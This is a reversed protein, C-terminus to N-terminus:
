KQGAASLERITTRWKVERTNKQILLLESQKQKGKRERGWGLENWKQPQMESLLIFAWKGQTVSCPRRKIGIQPSDESPCSGPIFLMSEWNLGSADDGRHNLSQPPVSFVFAEQSHSLHWYEIRLTVPLPQLFIHITNTKGSGCCLSGCRM